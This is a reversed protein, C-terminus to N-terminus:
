DGGSYDAGYEEEPDEGDWDYDFDAWFKDEAFDESDFLSNVPKEDEEIIPKIGNDDFDDWSDLTDSRIPM